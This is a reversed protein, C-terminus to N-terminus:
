GRGGAARGAPSDVINDTAPPAVVAHRGREDRTADLFRDADVVMADFEGALDVGLEAALHHCQDLVHRVSVTLRPPRGTPTHRYGQDIMTAECLQGCAAVLRLADVTLAQEDSASMPPGAPGVRPPPPPSDPPKNLSEAPLQTLTAISLTALAVDALEDGVDHIPRDLDVVPPHGLRTLLCQAFHGLQLGVEAAAVVPHWPRPATHAFRARLRHTQALMRATHDPRGPTIM